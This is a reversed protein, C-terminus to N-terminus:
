PVIQYSFLSSFNTAIDPSTYYVNPEIRGSNKLLTDGSSDQTLNASTTIGENLYFRITGTRQTTLVRVLYKKGKVLPYHIESLLDKEGIDHNYSIAKTPQGNAGLEFLILETDGSGALTRLTYYPPITLPIDIKRTGSGTGTLTFTPDSSNSYAVNYRYTGPELSIKLAGEEDTVLNYFLSERGERFIQINHNPIKFSASGDTLQLNVVSYRDSTLPESLAKPPDIRGYGSEVDYGVTSIDIATRELIEKAQYPTLSPTKKKLLAVVGATFPSSMSTGDLSVYANNAKGFSFIDVGPAAISLTASRTSFSAIEDRGNSAAVSIVGPYSAPYRQYYGSDNGSAAVVSVNAEIAKQIAKSELYSYGNGGFSLNIVDAGLAVAKDIAKAVNYSLILGASNSVRIPIITAKPAVGVVGKGNIRAAIIGAVHTGHGNEDRNETTSYVRDLSYDWGSVFATSGGFDEHLTNVGTDIVAVKIGEGTNTDWVSELGTQQPAYQARYGTDSPTLFLERELNPELYRIQPNTQLLTMLRKGKSDSMGLRLYREGEISFDEILHSSLEPISGLNFDQEVAVLWEGRYGSSLHMELETVQKSVTTSVSEKQSLSDALSCGTILLLLSLSFWVKHVM